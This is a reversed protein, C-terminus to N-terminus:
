IGPYNLNKDSIFLWSNTDPKELCVTALRPLKTKQLAFTGFGFRIFGSSRILTNTPFAQCWHLGCNSAPELQIDTGMSFRLWM